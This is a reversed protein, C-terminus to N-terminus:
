KNVAISRKYPLSFSYIGRAAALQTAEEEDNGDDDDDDEYSAMEKVKKSDTAIFPLSCRYFMSSCCYSIFSHLAVPLIDTDFAISEREM